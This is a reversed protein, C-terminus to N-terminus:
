PRHADRLELVNEALRRVEALAYAHRGFGLGLGVGEGVGVGVGLGVGVGVGLGLGVGVGVGPLCRGLLASSWSLAAGAEGAETHWIYAVDIGCRHWM